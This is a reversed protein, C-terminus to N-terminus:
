ELKERARSHNHQVAGPFIKQSKLPNRVKRPKRAFSKHVVGTVNECGFGVQM